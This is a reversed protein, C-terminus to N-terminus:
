VLRKPWLRYRPEALWANQKKQTPPKGKDDLEAMFDPWSAALGAAGAPDLALRVIVSWSEDPIHARIETEREVVLRVAVSQVRGASLGGAVKKWLLPSVQYGVIRDLIRRAQQANVKAM